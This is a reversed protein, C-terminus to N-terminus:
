RTARWSGRRAARAGLGRVPRHGHGRQVRAGAAGAGSRRRALRARVPDRLPRAGARRRAPRHRRRGLRGVGAAPLAARRRRRGAAVRRADGRAGAAGAGGRAGRRRGAAHEAAGPRALHRRGPQRGDAVRGADLRRRRAGGPRLPRRRELVGGAPAEDPPAADGALWRRWPVVAGAARGNADFRVPTRLGGARALLRLPWRLEGILDVSVLRRVRLGSEDAARAYAPAARDQVVAFPADLTSAVEAAASADAGDVPAVCAGARLAGLVVGLATPGPPLAVVVAEGAVIGDRRLAAAVSDAAASLAAYHMARRGDTVAPFTPAVAAAGAVLAGFDGSPPPLTEPM